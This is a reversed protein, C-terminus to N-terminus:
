AIAIANATQAPDLTLARSVGAAVAYSGQTTPDVGADRVPAVGSLRCQGQYALALAALFDRGSAGAYEAAALVAGLNDSPHCTEGKTLYSDNFDLYRVLASNYFAARDPAAYGGGILSCPGAGDFEEVQARVLRVPEGDLAGIACALADLVRIKLQERAAESLDDYSAAVAFQALREAITMASFDTVM